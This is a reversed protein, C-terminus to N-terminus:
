SPSVRLRGIIPTRSQQRSTGARHGAGQRGTRFRDVDDVFSIGQGAALEVRTGISTTASLMSAASRRGAHRDPPRRLGSRHVSSESPGAGLCAIALRLRAYPSPSRRRRDLNPSPSTRRWSAHAPRHGRDSSRPPPPLGRDMSPPWPRTRPHHPDHHPGGHAAQMESWVQGIPRPRRPRDRARRSDPDQRRPPHRPGRRHAPAPWGSLTAGREGVVTDYGDPCAPMIFDHIRAQSPRRSSRPRRSPM